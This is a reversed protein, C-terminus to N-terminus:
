GKRQTSPNMNLIRRFQNVTCRVFASPPTLPPFHCKRQLWCPNSGSELTWQVNELVHLHGSPFTPSLNTRLSGSSHLFPLLASVSQPFNYLDLLFITLQLSFHVLLLPFVSLPHLVFCHGCSFSRSPPHPALSVLFNSSCDMASPLFSLSLISSSCSTCALTLLPHQPHSSFSHWSPISCPASVLFLSVLTAAHTCLKSIDCCHLTILNQM